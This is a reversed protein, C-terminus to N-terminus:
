PGSIRRPTPSISPRPSVTPPTTIMRKAGVADYVKKAQTQAHMRMATDNEHEDIATKMVEWLDGQAVITQPSLDRLNESEVFRQMEEEAHEVAPVAAGDPAIKPAAAHAVWLSCGYLRAFMRAYGAALASRSSFDSALLVRQFVPELADAPRHAAHVLSRM